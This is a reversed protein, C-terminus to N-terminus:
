PGSDATNADDVAFARWCADRAGHLTEDTLPLGHTREAKFLGVFAGWAYAIMTEPRVDKRFLGRRQLDLCALYIPSLVALELGRSEADLYPAHDQLELFRFAARNNRAFDVLRQWFDDFLERGPLSFDLGRLRDALRQKTHRYVANVLVEKSEFRRYLTSAGVGAKELVMPVSTGYFGRDAFVDLAAQVIRLAQPDKEIEAPRM